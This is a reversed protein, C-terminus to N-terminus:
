NVCDAELPQLNWDRCSCLLCTLIHGLLWVSWGVCTGWSIVRPSRHGLNVYLYQICFSIIFYLPLTGTLLFFSFLIWNLDPTTLCIKKFHIVFCKEAINLRESLKTLEQRSLEALKDLVILRRLEHTIFQGTHSSHTHSSPFPPYLLSHAPWGLASSRM